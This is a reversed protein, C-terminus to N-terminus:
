AEGSGCDVVVWGDTLCAAWILLTKTHTRYCSWLCLLRYACCGRPIDLLIQCSGLSLMAVGHLTDEGNQKAVQLKESTEKVKQDLVELKKERLADAKADEEVYVQSALLCASLDM